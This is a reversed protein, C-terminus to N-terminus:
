FLSKQRIEKLIFPQAGRVQRWDAKQWGDQLRKRVEIERRREKAQPEPWLTIQCWLGILDHLPLVGGICYLDYLDKAFLRYLANALKMLGLDLLNPIRVNHFLDPKQLLPFGTALFHLGFGEIKIELERKNAFSLLPRSQEGLDKIVEDRLCASFAPLESAFDLDSEAARHGLRLSIAAGYSLYFQKGWTTQGVAKLLQLLQPAFVEPFFRATVM